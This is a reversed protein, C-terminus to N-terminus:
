NAYRAIKQVNPVIRESSFLHRLDEVLHGFCSRDASTSRVMSVLELCDAEVLLSEQILDLAPKVGEMYASIESDLALSCFHLSRCAVFVITGDSERLIIGAGDQGSQALFAGDINLKLMGAPPMVWPVKLFYFIIV